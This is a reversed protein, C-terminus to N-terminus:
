MKLNEKLFEDLMYITNFKGSFCSIFTPNERHKAVITPRSDDKESSILIPKIAFLSKKYEFKYEDKMYTKFLNMMEMRKSIPKYDCDNCNNLSLGSCKNNLKQCDFEPIKRYCTDHPTHNVSTLSHFGSKGFPMVSFFPGDMITVSIDKLNRNAKGTEVECLEYKIDNEPVGFIKNISNISAYTTNIVCNTSIQETNNLKLIYNNNEIEVCEIFTNYKIEINERKDILEKYRKKILEIDFVYEKTEYACSVTDEKFYHSSNVKKFSINIKECFQEFEDKTVFSNEKSIAYISRFEKNIAFKYDKYFREFYKSSNTATSISRPYHYGNHVRAQNVFSARSLIEKDKEVILIRKNSLVKNLAGSLGYIGAGIIVADYEKM